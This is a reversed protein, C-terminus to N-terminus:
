PLGLDSYTLEVSCSANTGRARYRYPASQDTIFLRDPTVYRTPKDDYEFWAIGQRQIAFAVNEETQQRGRSLWLDRSVTSLLSADGLRAADIILPASTDVAVDLAVSNHAFLEHVVDEVNPPAVERTDLLRAVTSSVRSAPRPRLLRDAHARLGGITRRSVM